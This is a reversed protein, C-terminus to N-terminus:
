FFFFYLSVFYFLFLFPFLFFHMMIPTVRKRPYQSFFNFRKIIHEKAETGTGAGGGRRRAPTRWRLLGCYRGPFEDRQCQQLGQWYELTALHHYLNGNETFHHNWFRVSSKKTLIFYGPWFLASERHKEQKYKIWSLFLKLYGNNWTPDPYPLGFTAPNSRIWIRVVAKLM